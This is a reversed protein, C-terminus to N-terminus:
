GGRTQDHSPAPSWIRGAAFAQRELEDAWHPPYGLMTVLQTLTARSQARVTDISPGPATRRAERDRGRHTTRPHHESISATSMDTGELSTLQM